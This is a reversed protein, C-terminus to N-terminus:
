LAHREYHQLTQRLGDELAIKPKWGLNNIKSIDVSKSPVGDPKNLDFKLEGDFGAICAIMETLKKITIEQGSAINIPEIKNWKELVLMLASAADDVHLFDRSPKGSGWISINTDGSNKAKLTKLILAPIVHCAHIDRSDELGYLNTLLVSRYRRGYQTCYSKALEIGSLKAIAYAKNSEELGGSLISDERYPQPAALPYICTSATFVLSHVGAEHAASMVNNQITLNDQLFDVPHDINDGIGGVRAATLFIHDPKNEHMYALTQTKDHFDLRSRKPTHILEYDPYATSILRALAQGLMGHEGAIMIKHRQATHAKDTTNM